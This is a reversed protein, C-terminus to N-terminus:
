NNTFIIHCLLIWMACPALFTHWFSCHWCPLPVSTSSEPHVPMDAPFPTLCPLCLSVRDELMAAVSLKITGIQSLSAAPLFPPFCMEWIEVTHWASGLNIIVATHLRLRCGALRYSAGVHSRQGTFDIRIGEMWLCPLPSQFTFFTFLFELGPSLWLGLDEQRTIQRFILFSVKPSMRWERHSPLTSEPSMDSFFTEGSERPLTHGWFERRSVSKCEFSILAWM